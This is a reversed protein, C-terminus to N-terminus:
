SAAPFRDAFVLRVADVLAQMGPSAVGGLTGVPSLTVPDADAPARRGVVDADGAVVDIAAAAENGGGGRGAEREGPERTAAVVTQGDVGIVGRPVV